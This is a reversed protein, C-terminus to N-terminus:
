PKAAKKCTGFFPKYEKTTGDFNVRYIKFYVEKLDTPYKYNNMASSNGAAYVQGLINWNKNDRSFMLLFHSCNTESTTSWKINGPEFRFNVVEGLSVTSNKITKSGDTKTPKVSTSATKGFNGKSSTKKHVSTKYINKPPINSKSKHSNQSFLLHPILLLLFFVNKM